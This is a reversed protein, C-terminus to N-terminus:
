CRVYETSVSEEKVQEANEAQEANLQMSIANMVNIAKKYPLETLGEWLIQLEEDTFVIKHTM